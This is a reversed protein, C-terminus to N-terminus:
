HNEHESGEGKARKCVDAVAAYGSSFAFQLNYGGTMGDVDLVEGAFYLGSVLTSSMRAGSVEETAVGGATVMATEFNKVGKVELPLATLYKSIEKRQERSLNGCTLEPAIGALELLRDLLRQPVSERKLISRVTKKGSEEAQGQLSKQFTEQQRHTTLNVTILDMPKFYRANNLIVPGSIGDHTVLLDGHYEDVKKGDRWLTIPINELSIGALGDLLFHSIELAALAPRVPVVRHGLKEALRYGDGTTGLSPYSKGGTSILVNHALWKENESIVHFHEARKTISTVTIGCLIQEGPNRINRVLANLVDSARRSQPFVKGQDTVEM